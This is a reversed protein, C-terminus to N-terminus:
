PPATDNAVRIFGTHPIGLGDESNEDSDIMTDFNYPMLPQHRLSSRGQNFVVRGLV